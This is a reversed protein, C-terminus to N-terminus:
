NDPLSSVFVISGIAAPVAPAPYPSTQSARNRMYIGDVPGTPNYAQDTAWWLGVSQGAEIYFTVSSYAVLYSPAGSSKRAPLTFLSSSRAVDVGNVRLWVEADHAANATNAFLLSYDIKYIGNYAATATNNINLTFGELTEALNWSVVTPTNNAAAYQNVNGTASIHPFNLFRGGHRGALGTSFADLQNFYLRLINSYKDQYSKTYDGAGLPLAPARTSILKDSV